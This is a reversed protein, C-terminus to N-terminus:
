PPGPLVAIWDVRLNTDWGIPWSQWGGDVKTKLGPPADTLVHRDTRVVNIRFGASTVDTATVAFTDQWRSSGVFETSPFAFVRPVAGLAPNFLVDAFPISATWHPKGRSNGIAASGSQAIFFPLIPSYGWAIPYDASGGPTTVRLTYAGLTPVIPGAMSPQVSMTQGDNALVTAPVNALRVAVPPGALNAGRVTLLGGPAPEVAFIIPPPM